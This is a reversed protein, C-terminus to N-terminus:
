PLPGTAAASSELAWVGMWPVTRAAHLRRRAFHSQMLRTVPSTGFGPVVGRSATRARGVPNGILRGISFTVAVAVAGLLFQRLGSHVLGRGTLRGVVMGGVLLAVATIAM